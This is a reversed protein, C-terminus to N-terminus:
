NFRTFHGMLNLQQAISAQTILISWAVMSFKVPAGVDASSIASASLWNAGM